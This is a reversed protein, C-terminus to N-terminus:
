TLLGRSVLRQELAIDERAPRQNKLFAELKFTRQEKLVTLSLMANPTANRLAPDLACSAELFIMSGLPRIAHGGYISRVRNNFTTTVEAGFEALHKIAEQPKNGSNRLFDAIHRLAEAAGNVIEAECFLLSKLNKEGESKGAISLFDGTEAERFFSADQDRGAALLRDHAQVLHRTLQDRTLPNSMMARREEPMPWNWYVDKDTNITLKGNKLSISTSAPISAYVLLAAAAFDQRVNDLDQFYYFSILEKLKRQLRRSIEMADIQVEEKTRPGFWAALTRAPVSVELSLLTDGFENTGNHVADEVARDLDTMWTDLSSTGGSSFHDPLYNLIYPRIQHELEARQMNEKAQLYQYSWTM